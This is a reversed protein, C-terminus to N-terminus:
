VGNQQGAAKAGPVPKPMFHPPIAYALSALMGLPLWFTRGRLVDHFAMFVMTSVLGMILPLVESVNGRSLAKRVVHVTLYALAFFAVLGVEFSFELYSDHINIGELNEFAGVGSGVAFLQLPNSRALEFATSSTHFREQISGDAQRSLKHAIVNAVYNYGQMGALRPAIAVIRIFLAVLILPFAYSRLFSRKRSEKGKKRYVVVFIICVVAAALFAVIGARSTSLVLAITGLLILMGQLFASGTRSWAFRAFLVSLAFAQLMGNKTPGDSVGSPLVLPPDGAALHRAPFFDGTVFQLITLVSNILLFWTLLSIFFSTDVRPMNERAFVYCGLSLLYAKLSSVTSFGLNALFGIVLLFALLAIVGYDVPLTYGSNVCKRLIDPITFALGFVLVWSHLTGPVLITQYYIFFM